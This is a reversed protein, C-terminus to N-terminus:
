EEEPFIRKRRTGQRYSTTDERRPRPRPLKMSDQSVSTRRETHGTPVRREPVYVPLEGTIEDVQPRIRKVVRQAKTMTVKPVIRVHYYNNDDEFQVSEARQYDLISDFCRILEALIGCLITLMIVTGINVNEGITLAAAVFGFVNMVCGLAIAIEKSFDISLRSVFHVLVIVLAFIVATFLWTTDTFSRLLAEYVVSFVEPLETLLEEIEMDAIGGAVSVPSMHGFLAPIQANIFVGVAVPVIATVPFYLGIVLPILYPVNFHFALLTFLILISEKPAMRAYFLFIFTFFLFASIVVEIDASFQITISLIILIWGLNMPMVTFIIAFLVSILLPSFGAIFPEVVEHVYGIQQISSFVFFGLLFKLIPLIFAEYRKFFKVLVERTILIHEM